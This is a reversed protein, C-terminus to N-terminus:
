TDYYGSDNHQHRPTYTIIYQIIEREREIERERYIYICMCVYVCKCVDINCQM